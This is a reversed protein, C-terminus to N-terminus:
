THHIMYCQFAASCDTLQVGAFLPAKRKIQIERNIIHLCINFPAAYERYDEAIDKARNCQWVVADALPKGKEDWLVTTERQNSIGIAKVDRTDIGTVEILDKVVGVTNGYIELADHSVYGEESILQRHKRDRRKVVKGNEDLLLAKTGQTSQDISIIYKM